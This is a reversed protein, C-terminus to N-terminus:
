NRFEPSRMGDQFLLRIKSLGVLPQSILEETNPVVLRVLSYPDKINHLTVVKLAVQKNVIIHSALLVM